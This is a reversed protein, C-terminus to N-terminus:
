QKFLAGDMEKPQDVVRAPAFEMQELIDKRV